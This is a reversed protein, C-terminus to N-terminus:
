VGGGVVANPMNKVSTQRVETQGGGGGLGSVIRQRIWVDGLGGKEASLLWVLGTNTKKGASPADLSACM